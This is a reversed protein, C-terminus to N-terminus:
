WLWRWLGFYRSLGAIRMMLCILNISKFVPMNVSGASMMNKSWRLRASGPSAVFYFDPLYLILM